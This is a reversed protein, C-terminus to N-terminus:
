HAKRFRFALDRRVDSFWRPIYMLALVWLSSVWLAYELSAKFAKM